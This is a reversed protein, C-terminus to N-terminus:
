AFINFGNLHHKM